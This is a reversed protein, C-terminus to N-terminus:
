HRVPPLGAKWDWGGLRRGTVLELGIKVYREADPRGWSSLGLRRAEALEAPGRLVTAEGQVLVSWGTHNVVNIGDTEFAVVAHDCAAEFSDGGGTIVLLSDPVLAFSVPLVVPLARVSLALRGISASGLLERCEDPALVELGNPDVDM